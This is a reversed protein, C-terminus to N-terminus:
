RTGRRAASLKTYTKDLLEPVVKTAATTPMFNTDGRWRPVIHFHLHEPLGAGAEDGLNLGVNFGDPKLSLRVVRLWEKLSRALSTLTQDPLSEMDPVHARPAVLLHGPNYPYLNMLVVTDDTRELTLHKRMNRAKVASCIFCGRDKKSAFSEVYVMRWPAWLNEM